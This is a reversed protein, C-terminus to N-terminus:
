LLFSKACRSPAMSSEEHIAAIATRRASPGIRVVSRAQEVSWSPAVVRKGAEPCAQLLQAAFMVQTNFGHDRFYPLPRPPRRMTCRCFGGGHCDNSTLYGHLQTTSYQVSSRHHLRGCRPGTSQLKGCSNEWRTAADSLVVSGISPILLTM